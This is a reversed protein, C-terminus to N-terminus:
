IGNLIKYTSIRQKYAIDVQQDTNKKYGSILRDGNIYGQLGSKMSSVSNSMLNNYQTISTISETDITSNSEYVWDLEFYQGLKNITGSQYFANTVVVRTLIKTIETNRWFLLNEVRVVTNSCTNGLFTSIKLNKPENSDYKFFLNGSKFPRGPENNLLVCGSSPEEYFDM